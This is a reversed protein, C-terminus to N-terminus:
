AACWQNQNSLTGANARRRPGTKHLSFMVTVCVIASSLIIAFCGEMAVMLPSKAMRM